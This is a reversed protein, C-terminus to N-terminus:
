VGRWVALMVQDGRRLSAGPEGMQDPRNTARVNAAHSVYRPESDEGDLFWGAEIGLRDAARRLGSEPIENRTEWKAVTTRDIGLMDALGQQTLAPAHYRRALALKRGPAM